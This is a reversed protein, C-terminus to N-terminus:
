DVVLNREVFSRLDSLRYRVASGIKIYPIEVRKNSRWNAVTQPVVQLYEAAGATDTLPDTDTPMDPNTQPSM